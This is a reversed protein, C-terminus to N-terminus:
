YPPIVSAFLRLVHTLETILKVFPVTKAVGSSKICAMIGTNRYLYIKGQPNDVHMFVLGESMDLISYFQFYDGFVTCERYLMTLYSGANCIRTALM